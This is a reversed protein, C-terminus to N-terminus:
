PLCAVPPFYRILGFLPSWSPFAYADATVISVHRVRDGDSFGDANGAGRHGHARNTRGTRATLVHVLDRRLDLQSHIEVRDFPEIGGRPAAEHRQRAMAEVGVPPEEDGALRPASLRAVDLVCLRFDGSQDAGRERRRLTAPLRSRRRAGLLRPQVRLLASGRDLARARPRAVVSTVAGAPLDEPAAAGAPCGASRMSVWGQVRVRTLYRAADSVNPGSLADFPSTFDHGRRRVKREISASNHAMDPTI